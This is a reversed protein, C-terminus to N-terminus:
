NSIQYQVTYIHNVAKLEKEDWDEKDTTAKKRKIVEDCKKFKLYMMIRKKWMSYDVGDFVPITIDCRGAMKDEKNDFTGEHESDEEQKVKLIKDEKKSKLKGEHESGKEQKIEM